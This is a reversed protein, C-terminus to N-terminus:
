DLGLNVLSIFRSSFIDRLINYIICIVYTMSTYVNWGRVLGEKSTVHFSFITWRPVQRTSAACGQGSSSGEEPCLADCLESRLCSHGLKIQM